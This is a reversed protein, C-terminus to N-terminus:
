IFFNYKSFSLYLFHTLYLYQCEDGRELACSLWSNNNINPLPTIRNVHRARNRENMALDKQHM